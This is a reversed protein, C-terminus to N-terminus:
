HVTSDLPPEKSPSQDLSSPQIAVLTIQAAYHELQVRTPKPPIGDAKLMAAVMRPHNKLRMELYDAIKIPDTIVEATGQFRHSRVRVEVLPNALINRVWDSKLGRSAGVLIVNGDNEYQLPTVRPKGTVRGTTTLLLILHGILPGLGLAYALQPPRKIIRFITKPLQHFKAM